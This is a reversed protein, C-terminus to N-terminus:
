FRLNKINNKRFSFFNAGVDFKTSKFKITENRKFIEM